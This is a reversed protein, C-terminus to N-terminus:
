RDPGGVFAPDDPNLARNDQTIEVWNGDPDAIFFYRIGTRGNQIGTMEGSNMRKFEEAAGSLDDVKFAIHKVGLRELDNGVTINVPGLKRNSEYEFLELIFDDDRALHVITLSDDPATWQLVLKFGFISYFAASEGTDRVSLACHHPRFLIEM